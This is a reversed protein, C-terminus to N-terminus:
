VRVAAALEMRCVEETSCFYGVRKKKGVGIFLREINLVFLRSAHGPGFVSIVRFIGMTTM